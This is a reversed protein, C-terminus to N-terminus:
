DFRSDYAMDAKICEIEERAEREKDREYDPWYSDIVMPNEVDM